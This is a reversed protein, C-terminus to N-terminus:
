ATVGSGTTIPYGSMYLEGMYYQEQFAIASLVREPTYPEGDLSVIWKDESDNLRHYVGIVRGTFERLPQDTGLVYVDQEEGDGAPIGSVYGYNVPYIMEPHQPHASGLPRDIIGSVERGIISFDMARIEQRYVRVQEGNLNTMHKWYTFGYREYVGTLDTSVYLRPHGDRKAMAYVQEILKGMRRAGRHAPFTYVFGLWPTIAPADIEDQQAYTCFAILESGETLLLVKSESGCLKKFGDGSLLQYLYQGANWDSKKIEGLWYGRDECSFYDIIRM